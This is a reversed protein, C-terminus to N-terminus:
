APLERFPWLTMESTWAQPSQRLLYLVAAAVDEPFLVKVGPRRQPRRGGFETVTTGPCITSVKIGADGVEAALSEAFGMLGFKSACYAAMGAYGTKGAGSSINIIVGGGQRKMAPLVAQSCLFPGTLNTALVRQWDDIALEEVTGHAGVGANNVLVDVRGLEALTQGVLRDVAAPVGVDTAVAVCRRGRTRVEGAVADLGAQGRAALALDMGAEALALAIARGIGRSAGTVLAVRGVLDPGEGRTGVM